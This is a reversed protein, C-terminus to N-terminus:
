CGYIAHECTEDQRTYRSGHGPVVLCLCPAVCPRFVVVRPVFNNLSKCVCSPYTARRSTVLANGKTGQGISVRITLSAPSGSFMMRISPSIKWCRGATNVMWPRSSVMRRVLPM